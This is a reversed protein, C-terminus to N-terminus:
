LLIDLRPSELHAFGERQFVREAPGVDLRLGARATAVERSREVLSAHHVQNGTLVQHVARRHQWSVLVRDLGGSVGDEYGETVALHDPLTPDLDQPLVAEALLLAARLIDRQLQAM